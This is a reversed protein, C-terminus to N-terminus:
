PAGKRLTEVTKKVTLFDALSTSALIADELDRIDNSSWGLAEFVAKPDLPKSGDVPESGLLVVLFREGTPAKYNLWGTDHVVRLSKTPLVDGVKM